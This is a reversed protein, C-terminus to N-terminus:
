RNALYLQKQLDFWLSMIKQADKICQETDITNENIFPELRSTRMAVYETELAKKAGAFSHLAIKAQKLAQIDDQVEWADKHPAADIGDQLSQVISNTYVHEFIHAITIWDQIMVCYANREEDNMERQTTIREERLIFYEKIHVITKQLVNHCRTIEERVSAFEPAHLLSYIPLAIMTDLENFNIGLQQSSLNGKLRELGQEIFATAAEPSSLPHGPQTQLTNTLCLSTAFLTLLLKKMTGDMKQDHTTPIIRGRM